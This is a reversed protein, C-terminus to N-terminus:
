PQSEGLLEPTGYMRGVEIVRVMDGFVWRDDGYAMTLPKDGDGTGVVVAAKVDVSSKETTFQETAVYTGEGMYFMSANEPPPARFPRTTPEIPASVRKDSLYWGDARREYSHGNGWLVVTGPCSPALLLTGDPQPIVAPGSDGPQVTILTFHQGFSEAHYKSRIYLQPLKVDAFVDPVLLSGSTLQAAWAVPDDDERSRQAITAAGFRAVHETEGLNTVLAGTVEFNARPVWVGNEAKMFGRFTLADEEPIKLKLLSRDLAADPNEDQGNTRPPWSPKGEQPKEKSCGIISLAGTLIVAAALFALRQMRQAKDCGYSGLATLQRDAVARSHSHQETTM